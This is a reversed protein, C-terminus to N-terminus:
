TPLAPHNSDRRGAIVVTFDSPLHRSTIWRWEEDCMAQLLAAHGADDEDFNVLIDQLARRHRRRKGRGVSGARSPAASRRRRRSRPGVAKM